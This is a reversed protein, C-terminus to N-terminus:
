ATKGNKRKFIIRFKTGVSLISSFEISGHMEKIIQYSVSLGLGTGKGPDKTTYFPMMIQKLNEEAIGIGNDSVEVVVLQDEEFTKIKVIKDFSIDQKEEREMLADKANSLLNMIVQEFQFTNGNIAPLKDDFALRLDIGHYKFQESVLSVANMISANIDFGTSIQSHHARSFVRIHDIINRIRHINDFIKDSKKKIYSKDLSEDTSIESLFNDMAMSITNLPQNIEHAIGSAMEGLGVMRDAHILLMELNKRQSIDRIIIMFSIHKGNSDHLVTASTETALLSLDKRIFKIEVNQALGDKMTKDFIEILNGKEDEPVFTSFHMGVLEEMKDTGFLRLGVASVEIIFGDLDTIVIGDPSANIMTRYREESKSLSITTDALQKRNHAESLERKVVSAFRTMNDKLLYDKAGSKILEVAKEEGIAGSIVIFPIDLAFTRNIELASLVDFQPMSYDSLILDWPQTRLAESMEESTEVRVFQVDYGAKRLHYVNIEADNQSDEIILAAIKQEMANSKIM